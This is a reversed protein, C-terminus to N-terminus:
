FFCSVPDRFGLLQRPRLGFQRPCDRIFPSHKLMKFRFNVLAQALHDLHTKVYDVEDVLLCLPCHM